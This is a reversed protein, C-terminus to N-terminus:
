CFLRYLVAGSRETVDNPVRSDTLLETVLRLTQETDARWGTPRGGVNVTCIRGERSSWKRKYGVLGPQDLDSLGWDLARLGRAHAWRILQWHIADNPRLPLFEALSAGFKYYVTDQWVLYVAGAVPQGRVFALATRIADDPAFEKWIREFFERPQALLRYKHKRLQVHLRHYEGIADANRSLVVEVGARQATAINRRTQSRLATHLEDLPRDLPTEHWAAEGITTFRADALAPSTALCRLTFPLDAAFADASVKEWTAFDPVIPDARDCFPLAIRREGRMDCVDMWVMGAIATGSDDTAVRAHPALGYSESVATIWPPSTFLNGGPGATLATWRSDTRPDARQVTIM